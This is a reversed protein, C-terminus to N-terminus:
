FNNQYSLFINTKRVLINKMPFCLYIVFCNFKFLQFNWVRINLWKSFHKIKWILNKKTMKPKGNFFIKKASTKGFCNKPQYCLRGQPRRALQLRLRLTFGCSSLRLVSFPILINQFIKWLIKVNKIHVVM